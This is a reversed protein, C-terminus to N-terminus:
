RGSLILQRVEVREVGFEDRSVGIVQGRDVEEILFSSPVEVRGLYHGDAGFVDWRITSAGRLSHRRAWVEGSDAVRLDTYAPLSEPLPMEQYNAVMQRISAEDQAFPNGSGRVYAELHEDTRATPAEALRVIRNLAGTDDFVGVEYETGGTIAVGHLSGSAAPEPSFPIRLLQLSMEAGSGSASASMMVGAHQALTDVPMGDLSFRLFYEPPASDGEFAEELSRTTSERDMSPMTFPRVRSLFTGSGALGVPTLMAMAGVGSLTATGLLAGQSDFRSIRQLRRDAAVIGGDPLPWAGVLAQFEEPGEGRGGFSRLHGGEADFVRIEGAGNDAVVLNGEGDRVVSVIGDFLLEEAGELAGISLSSEAALEAYVADGPLSTVITVGASDVVEAAPAAPATDSGCGVLTLAVLAQTIRRM